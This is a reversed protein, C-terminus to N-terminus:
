SIGEATHHQSASISTRQATFGSSDSARDKSSTKTLAHLRMHKMQQWSNQRGMEEFKKKRSGKEKKSLDANPTALATEQTPRHFLM